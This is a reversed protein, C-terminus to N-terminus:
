GSQSPMGSARRRYDWGRAGADRGRRGAKEVSTMVGGDEAVGDRATARGGDRGGEGVDNGDRSSSAQVGLFHRPHSRVPTRWQVARAGRM